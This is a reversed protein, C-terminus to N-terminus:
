HNPQRKTDSDMFVMVIVCDELYRLSLSIVSMMSEEKLPKLLKTVRYAQTNTHAEQSSHVNSISTLIYPSYQHATHPWTASTLDSVILKLGLRKGCGSSASKTLVSTAYKDNAKPEIVM